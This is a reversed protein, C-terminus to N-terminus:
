LTRSIGSFTRPELGRPVMHTSRRRNVCSSVRQDGRMAPFKFDRARQHGPMASRTSGAAIATAELMSANLEITVIVIYRYSVINKLAGM